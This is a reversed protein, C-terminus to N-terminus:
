YQSIVFGILLMGEELKKKGKKKEEKNAKAQLVILNHCKNCLCASISYFGDYIFVKFIVFQM